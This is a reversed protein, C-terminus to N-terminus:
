LFFKRKTADSLAMGRTAMRCKKVIEEYPVFYYDKKTSKLYLLGTNADLFISDIDYYHVMEVGSNMEIVSYEGGFRFVHDIVLYKDKLIGIIDCGEDGVYTWPNYEGKLDKFSLTRGDDLEQLLFRDFLVTDSGFLWNNLLTLSDVSINRMNKVNYKYYFYYDYGSQIWCKDGARNMQANSPNSNISDIIELTNKDFVRMGRDFRSSQLINGNMAFSHWNAYDYFSDDRIDFKKITKENINVFIGGGQSLSFVVMDGKPSVDYNTVFRFDLECFPQGDDDIILINSKQDCDFLSYNYKEGCEDLSVLNQILAINHERNYSIIYSGSDFLIKNKFYYSNLFSKNNRILYSYVSPIKIANYFGIKQLLLGDPFSYCSVTQGDFTYLTDCDDSLAYGYQAIPKSSTITNIHRLTNADTIVISDSYNSVLFREDNTLVGCDDFQMWHWQGSVLSDYAERLTAEVEAVYPRNSSDPTVDLLALISEMVNGDRIEIKAKEAVARAQNEMMKWNAIQLNNREILLSHNTQVISDKQLGILSDRRYIKRMQEAMVISDAHLRNNKTQIDEFQKEIEEKQANIERNKEVISKNLRSYVVAAVVGIAALLLAAVIVLVRRRRSEREYRQWLSDFKLGFMQAVVKVAAADRGMEDINIGLLEQDPPLNLLALPFCEEEPKQTHATGGIIFPIIKDTRDLDIFTQIEKGVWQSRAARPSCIVILYKSNVLAKNIEDALVGAALESQDRFIPRIEKPLDTRGNLNSPLKYHELKHQLWKAWKEDERKYSIFAFYEKDNNM